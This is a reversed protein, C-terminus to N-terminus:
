MGGPNTPGGPSLRGAPQNVAPPPMSPADPAPRVNTVVPFQVAPQKQEQPMPSLTMAYIPAHTFKNGLSLWKNIAAHSLAASPCASLKHKTAALMLNQGIHGAEILVVRYANDDGYKWMTREFFACLIIVCPMDDAWDQGGMLESPKPLGNAELRGLTHELASYHYFGPELGEVSRTYVYAEYPNRAGGSPTMSLPLSGVCNETEGIIGMGAFLCDALQKLSIPDPGAERVTRRKAMLQLLDNDELASPLAHIQGSAKSNALHLLPQGCHRIKDRQLAESEDLSIYDKDQASFHLMASPIGWSWSSKFEDEASALQSGECTIADVAVLGDLSEQLEDPPTTPMLAAIQDFETWNDIQSLLTLLDPSCSFVSHTLYNYAIVEGAERTFVLARSSRFKM